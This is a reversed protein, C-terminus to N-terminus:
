TLAESNWKCGLLARAKHPQATPSTDTPNGPRSSTTAWGAWQEEGRGKATGRAKTTTETAGEQMAMQRAGESRSHSKSCTGM